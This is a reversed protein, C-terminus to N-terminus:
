EVRLKYRGPDNPDEYIEIDFGHSNKIDFEEHHGDVETHLKTARDSKPDRDLKVRLRKEGSFYELWFDIKPVMTM